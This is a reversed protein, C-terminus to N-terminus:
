AAGGKRRMRGVIVAGAIVVLVPPGVFLPWTAADPEPTYSVYDGYRAILWTRISEPSEVAAIRARIQSRMDGAISANSDAISQSQCVLCRITVMLAQAKAELAPDPLQRDAWPAAPMSDDAGAPTVGALSFAPAAVALMLALVLRTM